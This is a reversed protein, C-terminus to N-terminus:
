RGFKKDLSNRGCRRVEVLIGVTCLCSVICTGIRVLFLYLILVNCESCSVKLKLIINFFDYKMLSFLQRFLVSISVGKSIEEQELLNLVPREM